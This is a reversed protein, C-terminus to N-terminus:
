RRGLKRVSDEVARGIGVIYDAQIAESADRAAHLPPGDVGGGAEELFGASAGSTSHLVPGVEAYIEGGGFGAFGHLDYSISAAYTKPYGRAVTARQRWDRKLRNASRGIAAILNTDTEVVADGLDAILDDLESFDDVM